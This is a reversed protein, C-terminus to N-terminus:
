ESPRINCLLWLKIDTWQGLFTVKLIITRSVDLAYKPIFYFPLLIPKVANISQVYYSFEWGTGYLKQITNLLLISMKYQLLRLNYRLIFTKENNIHRSAQISTTLTSTCYLSSMLDYM